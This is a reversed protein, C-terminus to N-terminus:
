LFRKLKEDTIRGLDDVLGEAMLFAKVKKRVFLPFIDLAMWVHILLASDFSGSKHECKGCDPVLGYDELHNKKLIKYSLLTDVLEQPIQNFETTM